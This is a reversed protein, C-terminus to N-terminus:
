AEVLQLTTSSKEQLVDVESHTSSGNDEEYNTGGAGGDENLMALFEDLFGAPFLRRVLVGSTNDNVSSNLVRQMGGRRRIEPHPRQLKESPIRDLLKHFRELIKHSHSKAKENSTSTKGAGTASTSSMQLFRTQNRRLSSGLPDEDEEEEVSFDALGDGEDKEWVYGQLLEPDIVVTNMWSDFDKLIYRYLFLWFIQQLPK